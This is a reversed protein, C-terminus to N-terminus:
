PSVRRSLMLQEAITFDDPWDIDWATVRDLSYLFPASGIRDRAADYVNVSALFVASNIEYIPELTQTRPWKETARDYNIPGADNWLFGHLPTVTMLSDYGVAIRRRYENIVKSYEGENVFPSTVHTWLIHGRGILDRAHQVLDDTSTESSALRSERRHIKLRPERLMKAYEIIEDDDTSLVIQDIEPCGLLQKLKIEILGNTFRGFAKVNKRPVRESGKRCPLFASIPDAPSSM